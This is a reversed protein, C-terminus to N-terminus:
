MGFYKVINPHQMNMIKQIRNIFNGIDAKQLKVKNIAKIIIQEDTNKNTAKIVKSYKSIKM